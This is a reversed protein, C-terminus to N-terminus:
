SKFKLNLANLNLESLSLASVHVASLNLLLACVLRPFEPKSLDKIKKKLLIVDISNKSPGAPQFWILMM